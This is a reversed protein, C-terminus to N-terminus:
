FAQVRVIEKKVTFEKRYLPAPDYPKPDHFHYREFINMRAGFYTPLYLETCQLEVDKRQWWDTEWEQQPKWAIWRAGKWDELHFLGTSFRATSSWDSSKKNKDWVKVKWFYDSAPQLKKGKYVIHTTRNSKVIGSDFADGVNKDLKEQSSAVLLQYATQFQGNVESELQWYFRPDPMDIGEPNSLYECKLNVPQIQAFTNSFLCTLVIFLKFKRM